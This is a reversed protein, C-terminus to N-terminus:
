GDLMIMLEDVLVKVIMETHMCVYINCCMENCVSVRVCVNMYLALMSFFFFVCINCETHM